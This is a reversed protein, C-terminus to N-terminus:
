LIPLADIETQADIMKDKTTSQVPHVFAAHKCCEVCEACLIPDVVNEKKGTNNRVMMKATIERGTL